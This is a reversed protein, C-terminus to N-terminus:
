PNADLVDAGSADIAAHWGNSAPMSHHAETPIDDMANETHNRM